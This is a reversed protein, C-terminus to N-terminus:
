VLCDASGMLDVYPTNVLMQHNKIPCRQCRPLYVMVISGKPGHSLLPDTPEVKTATQGRHFVRNWGPHFLLPQPRQIGLSTAQNKNELKKPQKSCKPTEKFPPNEGWIMWPNIPNEMIKVMLKPTGRNKSVGM